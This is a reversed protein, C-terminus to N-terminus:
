ESAEMNAAAAAKDEANCFLRGHMSNLRGSLVVESVSAPFDRKIQTQQPPLRDGTPLTDFFSRM